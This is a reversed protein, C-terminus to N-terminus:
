KIEGKNIKSCIDMIEELAMIKGRSISSQDHTIISKLVTVENDITIKCYNVINYRGKTGLLKLYQVTDTDM